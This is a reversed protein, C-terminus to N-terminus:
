NVNGEFAKITAASYKKALDTASIEGKNRKRIDSYFKADHGPAWTGGTKTGCGCACDNKEKPKREAKPKTETDVM